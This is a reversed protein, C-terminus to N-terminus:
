NLVLQGSQIRFTRILWIFYPHFPFRLGAKLHAMSIAGERDKSDGIYEGSKLARCMHHNLINYRKVLSDVDKQDLESQFGFMYGVGEDDSREGAGNTGKTNGRNNWEFNM